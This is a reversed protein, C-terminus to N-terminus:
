NRVLMKLTLFSHKVTRIIDDLWSVMLILRCLSEQLSLVIAPTVKPVRSLAPQTKMQRNTHDTIRMHINAGGPCAVPGESTDAPEQETEAKLVCM